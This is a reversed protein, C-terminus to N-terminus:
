RNLFSFTPREKRFRAAGLTAVISNRIFSNIRFFKSYNTLYPISIIKTSSFLPGVAVEPTDFLFIKKGLKPDRRSYGKSYFFRNETLMSILLFDEMKCTEEVIRGMQFLKMKDDYIMKQCIFSVAHNVYNYFFPSLTIIPPIVPIPIATQKCFVSSNLQKKIINFDSHYFYDCILKTKLKILYEISFFNRAKAPRAVTWPISQLLGQFNFFSGAEETPGPLPLMLNARTATEDAHSGFYIQYTYFTPDYNYNDLNFSILTNFDNKKKQPKKLMQDLSKNLSFGLFYNNILTPDYFTNIVEIQPLVSSNFFLHSERLRKILFHYDIRTKHTSQGLIFLIKKSTILFKCVKHKGLLLKALIATSNGLNIVNELSPFNSGITLLIKTSDKKLISLLKNYLISMELELNCGVLLILDFDHMSTVSEHYTHQTLVDFDIVESHTNLVFNNKSTHNQALSTIHQVSNEISSFPGIVSHLHRSRGMIMAAIKTALTLSIFVTNSEGTKKDFRRIYAHSLRQLKIADLSIRINDTILNYNLYPNKQPLVRLINKGRTYLICNSGWSDHLDLFRIRALEWSRSRFANAKSTLAGCLM